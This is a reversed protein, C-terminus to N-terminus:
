LKALLNGSQNNHVVGKSDYTPAHATQEEAEVLKPATNILRGTDPFSTKCLYYDFNDGIAKVPQVNTQMSSYNEEM